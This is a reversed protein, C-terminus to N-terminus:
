YLWRRVKSGKTSLELKGEKKNWRLKPVPCVIGKHKHKIIRKRHQNGDSEREVRCWPCNCGDKMKGLTTTIEM